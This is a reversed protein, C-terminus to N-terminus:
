QAKRSKEFDETAKLQYTMLHLNTMLISRCEEACSTGKEESLEKWMGCAIMRAKGAEKTRSILELRARIAAAREKSLWGARILKDIEALLRETPSRGDMDGLSEQLGVVQARMSLRLFADRVRQSIRKKVEAEIEPERTKCRTEVEIVGPEAGTVGSYFWVAEKKSEDFKGDELRILTTYLRPDEDAKVYRYLGTTVTDEKPDLAMPISDGETRVLNRMFMHLLVSEPPNEPAVRIRYLYAVTRMNVMRADSQIKASCGYAPLWYRNRVYEKGSLKKREEDTLGAEEIPVTETMAGTRTDIECEYVVIGHYGYKLVLVGDKFSHIYRDLNADKLVKVPNPSAFVSEAHAPAALSIVSAVFLPIVVRTGSSSSGHRGGPGVRLVKGPSM